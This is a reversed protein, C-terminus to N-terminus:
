TQEPVSPKKAEDTIHIVAYRDAMFSARAEPNTLLFWILGIEWRFEKTLQNAGHRDDDRPIKVDRVYWLIHKAKPDRPESERTAETTM